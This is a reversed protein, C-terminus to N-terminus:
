TSMAQSFSCFVRSANTSKLAPLGIGADFYLKQSFTRILRHKPSIAKERMRHRDLPINNTNTLSSQNMCMIISQWYIKKISDAVKRIRHWWFRGVGADFDITKQPSGRAIGADFDVSAQKIGVNM